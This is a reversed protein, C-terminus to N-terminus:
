SCSLSAHQGVGQPRATPTSGHYAAQASTVQTTLAKEEVELSTEIVLERVLYRAYWPVVDLPERCNPKDRFTDGLGRVRPGYATPMARPMRLVSLGTM